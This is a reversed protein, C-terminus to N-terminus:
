TEESKQFLANRLQLRLNIAYRFIEDMEEKSLLKFKMSDSLVDNGGISIKGFTTIPKSFNKLTAGGFYIQDFIGNRSEEPYKVQTMGLISESLENEIFTVNTRDIKDKLQPDYYHIALIQLDDFIKIATMVTKPNNDKPFFNSYKQGGTTVSNTAYYEFSSTLFATYVTPLKFMVDDFDFDSHALYLEIVNSDNIELPHHNPKTKYIVKKDTAPIEIKMIPLPFLNNINPAIIKELPLKKYLEKSKKDKHKLHIVIPEEKTGKHYTIERQPLDGVQYKIPQTNLLKYLTIDFNNGLFDIKLDYKGFDSKYPIIRCIDKNNIVLAIRQNKNRSM